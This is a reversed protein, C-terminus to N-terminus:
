WWWGCRGRETTCCTRNSCQVLTSRSTAHNGLCLCLYCCDVAGGDDVGEDEQHGVAHGLVCEVPDPWRENYTEMVINVCGHVKEENKPPQTDGTMHM